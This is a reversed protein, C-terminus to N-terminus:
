WLFFSILAFKVSKLTSVATWVSQPPHGGQLVRIPVTIRMISNSFHAKSLNLLNGSTICTLLPLAGTGTWSPKAGLSLTKVELSLIEECRSAPPPPVASGPPYLDNWTVVEGSVPLLVNIFLFMSMKFNYLFSQSCLLPQQTHSHPTLDVSNWMSFIKLM